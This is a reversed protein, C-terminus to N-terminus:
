GRHGRFLKELALFDREELRSHTPLTLLRNALKEAGPWATEPGTTKGAVAPLANLTIPYSAAVGLSGVDSRNVFRNRHPMLLPFRLYGAVGSAPVRILEVDSASDLIENIRRANARRVAGERKAAEHSALLNAASVRSLSRVRQPSHYVTEGLGLGPIMLALSYTAARALSWQAILGVSTTAESRLGAESLEPGPAETGRTLVAGGNGGTWGKGRGFSLLSIAAVAGLPQGCWAAGHGQAADEVVVGGYRKVVAEIEGVDLPVGYLPAVVVVRAGAELVRALSARDPALTSPDVDYFSIRAGKNGMAATAVDFCSFAPLAVPASPDVSKGAERIALTLAQTGSGCLVVQDARYERRLLARLTPRPDGGLRALQGLGRTISQLSVPSYVPPLHRHPPRLSSSIHTM